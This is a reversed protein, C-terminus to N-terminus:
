KAPDWGNPSMLSLVGAFETLFLRVKKGKVLPQNQGQPGAWGPPRQGTRRYEVTVTAQGKLPGKEVKSIQILATSQIDYGGVKVPVQRDEVSEVIGVVIHDARDQRDKPSIPPLAAEAARGGM